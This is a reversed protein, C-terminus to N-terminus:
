ARLHTLFKGAKLYAHGFINRGLARTTRAYSPSWSRLMPAGIKTYVFTKKGVLRTAADGAPFVLPMVNLNYCEEARRPGTAGRSSVSHQMKQLELTMVHSSIAGERSRGFIIMDYAHVTSIKVQVRSDQRV